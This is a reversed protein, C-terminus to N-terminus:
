DFFHELEEAWVEWEEDTMIRAEDNVIEYDEPFHIGIQELIAKKSKQSVCGSVNYEILNQTNEVCVEKSYKMQSVSKTIQAEYEPLLKSHLFTNLKIKDDLDGRYGYQMAMAQRTEWTYDLKMIKMLDVVSNMWDLSERENDIIGKESLDAFYKTSPTDLAAILEDLAASKEEETLEVTERIGGYKSITNFHSQMALTIAPTEFIIDEQNESSKAKEVTVAYRPPVTAVEILNVWRRNAALTRVLVKVMGNNLGRYKTAQGRYRTAEYNSIHSTFLSM